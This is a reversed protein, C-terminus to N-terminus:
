AVFSCGHNKPLGAKFYAAIQMEDLVRSVVLVRAVDFSAYQVVNPGNDVSCGILIKDYSDHLEGPLPHSASYTMNSVLESDIWIQLSSPANSLMHIYVVAVHHWSDLTLQTATQRMFHNWGVVSLTGNTSLEISPGNTAFDSSRFQLLTQFFIYIFFLIRLM